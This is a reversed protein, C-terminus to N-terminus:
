AIVRIRGLDLQYSMGVVSCRRARVADTLATSRRQLLRVTRRVHVDVIRDVIPVQIAATPKQSMVMAASPIIPSVVASLHGLPSQGNVVAEHAAHVAGCSSHGLVVVLPTHLVTVAYDISGLVEPGVTHGATRIVFLDGLGQDFIIEAGLRSDSCGFIVAFPRQGTAVAERRVSDQNPHLATDTVFRHNGAHLEVLAQGPTM